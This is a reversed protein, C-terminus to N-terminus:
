YYDYDDDYGYYKTEATHREQIARNPKKVKTSTAEEKDSTLFRRGEATNERSLTHGAWINNPQRGTLLQTLFEFLSSM